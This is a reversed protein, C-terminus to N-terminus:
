PRGAPADPAWRELRNMKCYFPALPDQIRYMYAALGDRMQQLVDAYEEKGALNDQEQPDSTLRYLEDDGACNFVYKYEGTRYMRQSALMPFAGVSETVTETRLPQTEGQLYPLFSIGHQSNCAPEGAIDLITAYVDCTNALYHVTKQPIGKPPKILLPIRTTEEYMHYTKNELGSHCGQSDGHDATVIIYSNDYLGEQRLYDLYRGIQRDINTIAAYYHRLNNAFFSWDKEPRQVVTQLRNVPKKGQEFGPWPPIELGEYLALDEQTVYYPEHPGWFNLALFFPADQGKLEETIERARQSLFYEITTKEGTTITGGRSHDGPREAGYKGEITQQLGNEKLYAQFQPTENGGDGHGPFDDGTFGVDTPLTGYQLYADACMDFKQMRKLLKRGEASASKDKGMGLHWKGTYGCRYDNAQLRRSLLWPRDALEHTTCGPQYINSCLGTVSPNLGTHLSARAPTCIPATTYANDFCLSEGALADLNPTICPSQSNCYHFTDARHQDTVILIINPKM